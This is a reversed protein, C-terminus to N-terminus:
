LAEDKDGQLINETAATTSMYLITPATACVDTSSMPDSGVTKLHMEWVCVTFGQNLTGADLSIGSKTIIKEHGALLEM